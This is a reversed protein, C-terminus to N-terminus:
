PQDAALEEQPLHAIAARGNRIHDRQLLCLDRHLAARGYVRGGLVTDVEVRLGVHDACKGTALRGCRWVGHRRLGPGRVREGDDHVFHQGRGLLLVM